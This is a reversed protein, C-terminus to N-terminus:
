GPAGGAAWGITKSRDVAVHYGAAPPRPAGTVGNWYPAGPHTGTTPSQFPLPCTPMPTNSGAVPVQYRRLSTLAPRGSAPTKGYPPTPQTGTTPSQSPSPRALMPTNSGDVPTQYRRLLLEAPAGLM